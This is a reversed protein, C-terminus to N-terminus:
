QPSFHDAPKHARRGRGPRLRRTAAGHQDVAGCGVPEASIPVLVFVPEADDDVESRLKFRKFM